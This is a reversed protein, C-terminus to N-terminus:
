LILFCEGIDFFFFFFVCSCVELFTILFSFQADTISHTLFMNISLKMFGLLNQFYILSVISIQSPFIDQLLSLLLSFNNFLFLNSIFVFMSNLTLFCPFLLM